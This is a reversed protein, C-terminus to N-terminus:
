LLITNYHTYEKNQIFDYNVQIIKIYGFVIQQNYLELYNNGNYWVKHFYSLFNVYLINEYFMNVTKRTNNNIIDILKSLIINKNREKIILTYINEKSKFFFSKILRISKSYKACNFPLPKPYTVIKVSKGFPDNEPYDIYTFKWLWSFYESVDLPM